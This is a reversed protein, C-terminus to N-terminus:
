HATATYVAICYLTSNYHMSYQIPGLYRHPEPATQLKPPVASAILRKHARLHIVVLIIALKFFRREIVIANPLVSCDCDMDVM